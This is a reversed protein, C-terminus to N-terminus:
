SRILAMNESALVSVLSSNPMLSQPATSFTARNDKIPIHRLFVLLIYIICFIANLSYAIMSLWSVYFASSMCYVM